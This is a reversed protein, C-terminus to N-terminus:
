RTQSPQSNDTSDNSEQSSSNSFTQLDNIEGNIKLENTSNNENKPKRNAYLKSDRKNETSGSIAAVNSDKMDDMKFLVSNLAGVRYRFQFIMFNNKM